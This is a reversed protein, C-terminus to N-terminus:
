VKREQTELWAEVLILPEEQLLLGCEVCFLISGFVVGNFIWGRLYCGTAVLRQGAEM